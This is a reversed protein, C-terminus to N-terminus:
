LRPQSGTRRFESGVAQHINFGYGPYIRWQFGPMELRMGAPVAAYTQFHRIRCGGPSREPPHRIFVELNMRRCLLLHLTAIRSDFVPRCNRGGRRKAYFAGFSVWLFEGVTAATLGQRLEALIQWGGTRLV